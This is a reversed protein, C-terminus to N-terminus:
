SKHLMMQKHLKYLTLVRNINWLCNEKLLQIFCSTSNLKYMHIYLAHLSSWTSLQSFACVDIILLIEERIVKMESRVNSKTLFLIYITYITPVIISLHFWKIYSSWVLSLVIMNFFSFLYLYILHSM